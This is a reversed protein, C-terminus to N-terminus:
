VTLLFTVLCLALDSDAEAITYRIQEITNTKPKPTNKKDLDIEPLSSHGPKINKKEKNSESCVM